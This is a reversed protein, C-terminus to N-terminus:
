YFVTQTRHAPRAAYRPQLGRHWLWNDLLRPPVGAARALGECAHVACARMEVEERSGAALPVGADLRRQLGADLVLVGDTRLVHPLLNDAFVTLSDLDAFAAVGALALDNATIQARKYFGHDAYFPLGDALMRALRAASGRADAVLDLARRDGLLAGLQALGRAYLAMLPHAPDEGLVGAVTAADMARLALADWPGGHARAHATLRRTMGNTSGDRLTPFWGSGFNIADLILVYRAVDDPEGELFHDGAHLGATGATYAAAGVDIRIHRASAAVAACHRRVEDPLTPSPM